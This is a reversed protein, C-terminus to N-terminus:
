TEKKILMKGVLVKLNRDKIENLLALSPFDERLAPPFTGKLLNYIRKGVLLEVM